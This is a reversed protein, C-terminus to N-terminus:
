FFEHCKRRAIVDEVVSPDVGEDLLSLLEERTFARPQPQYHSPTFPLHPRVKILMPSVGTTYLRRYQDEKRHIVIDHVVLPNAGEELLAHIDKWTTNKNLLSHYFFYPDTPRVLIPRPTVGYTHLWHIEREVPDFITTEFIHRPFMIIVEQQKSSM